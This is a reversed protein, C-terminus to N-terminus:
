RSSSSPRAFALGVLCLVLSSSRAEFLRFCSTSRTTRPRATTARSRSRSTTPILRREPRSSTSYRVPSPSATAARRRPSRLTVAPMGDAPHEGPYSRSRHLPHGAAQDGGAGAAACAGRRPRLDAAVRVASSLREVDDANQLFAGSYVKFSTGGGETGGTRARRQRRSPAPSRSRAHHWLRRPAGDDGRRPDAGRPRRRRLGQRYGASRRARCCTWRWPACSITKSRM